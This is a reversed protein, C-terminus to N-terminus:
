NTALFYVFVGVQIVAGTAFLGIFLLFMRMRSGSAYFAAGAPVGALGSMLVGIILSLLLFYFSENSPTRGAQALGVGAFVTGMLVMVAWYCHAVVWIITVFVRTVVLLIFGAPSAANPTPSRPKKEQM